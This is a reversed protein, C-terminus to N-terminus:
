SMRTGAIFGFWADVPAPVHQLTFVDVQGPGSAPGFPNDSSMASRVDASWAIGGPWIIEAGLQRQVYITVLSSQVLTPAEDDDDFDVAEFPALAITINGVGTLWFNVCQNPDVTAVGGDAAVFMMTERYAKAEFRDQPRWGFDNASNRMSPGRDDRDPLDGPSQPHLRQVQGDGSNGVPASQTGTTSAVQHGSPRAQGAVIGLIERSLDLTESM